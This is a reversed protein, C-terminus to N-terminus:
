GKAPQPSSEAAFIRVSPVKINLYKGLDEALSHIAEVEAKGTALRLDKAAPIILSIHFSWLNEKGGFLSNEGAPTAEVKLEKVLGFPHVIKKEWLLKKQTFVLRQNAKDIAVDTIYDFLFLGRVVLLIFAGISILVLCSFTFRWRNDEVITLPENGPAQIYNKITALTVDLSRKNEYGLMMPMITTGDALMIRRYSSKPQYELSANTLNNVEITAFTKGWLNVRTIQCAIQDNPTRHCVLTAKELHWLTQLSAAIVLVIAIILPLRKLIRHNYHLVFETPTQKVIEWPKM